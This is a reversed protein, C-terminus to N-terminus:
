LPPLTLRNNKIAYLNFEAVPNKNRDFLTLASPAEDNIKWGPALSLQVQVASGAKVTVPPSSELNPLNDSYQAADGEEKLSPPAINPTTVKRNEILRIANNNTDAVYFVDGIKLIDNPENFASTLLAGDKSGREGHGAFTTLVGTKPDYRRISHNYSDAIYVG